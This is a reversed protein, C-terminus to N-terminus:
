AASARFRAVVASAWGALPNAASVTVTTDLTAAKM